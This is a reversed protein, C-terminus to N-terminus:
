AAHAAREPFLLAEEEVPSMAALKEVTLLSGDALRIGVFIRRLKGYPTLKAWDTLPGGAALDAKRLRDPATLCANRIIPNSAQEVALLLQTYNVPQETQGSDPLSFRKTNPFDRTAGNPLEVEVYGAEIYTIKAPQKGDILVAQNVTFM